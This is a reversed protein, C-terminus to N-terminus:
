EWLVPLGSYKKLQEDRSLIVVEQESEKELSRATAVILADHIDLREDLLDLQDTTHGVIEFSSVKHLRKKTESASLSFRGHHHLYHIECLVIFPIQKEVEDDLLLRLVKEPVRKDKQLFWVLVHTDLVCIM